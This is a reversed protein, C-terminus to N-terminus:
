HLTLLPVKSHFVMKHTQSENFIRSIISHHHPVIVVM